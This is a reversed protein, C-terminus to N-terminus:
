PTSTGPPALNSTASFKLSSKSKLMPLGSISAQSM